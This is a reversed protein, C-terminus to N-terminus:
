HLVTLMDIDGLLITQKESSSLSRTSQDGEVVADPATIPGVKTASSSSLLPRCSAYFSFMIKPVRSQSIDHM